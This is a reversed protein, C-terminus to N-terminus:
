KRGATAIRYITVATGVIAVAALASVAYRFTESKMWGVIQRGYILALISLAFFRSVRVAALTAFFRARDVNLAGATLVFPTYPFPPPLLAPLALAYAGTDDVRKRMRKLRDPRVFRTLGNEGAKKGIWYTVAAGILSGGVGILPYLWFFEPRRATLLIVVADVALPLYFLVTGDLVALVFLGSSSLFFSFGFLPV